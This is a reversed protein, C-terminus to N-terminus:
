VVLSALYGAPILLSGVVNELNVVIQLTYLVM